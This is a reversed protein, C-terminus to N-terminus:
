RYGTCHACEGDGGYELGDHDFVAALAFRLADTRHSPRGFLKAAAAGLQQTAASQPSLIKRFDDHIAPNDDVVLIRHIPDADTNM